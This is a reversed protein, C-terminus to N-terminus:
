SAPTASQPSGKLARTGRVLRSSGAKARPRVALASESLARFKVPVPFLRLPLSTRRPLRLLPM